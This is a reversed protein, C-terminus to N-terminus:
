VQPGAEEMRDRLRKLAIHRNLDYSWHGQLGKLREKELLRNLRTRELGASKGSGQLAPVDFGYATAIAVTGAHLREQEKRKRFARVQAALDDM